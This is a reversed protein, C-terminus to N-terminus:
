GSAALRESDEDLLLTAHRRIEAYPVSEWDGDSAAGGFLRGALRELIRHAAQPHPREPDDAADALFFHLREDINDYGILEVLKARYELEVSSLGPFARHDAVHQAEHGLLSVQFARNEELPEPYREAVCYLGDPWTADGEQYWGGAGQAGFTQWHLWGRILFDHCFHVTVEQPEDRPLTVTFPRHETRSWIYAGLYPPTRGGLFEVGRENFGARLAAEAATVDADDDHTRPRRTLSALEDALRSEATARDEELEFVRTFYRLYAMLAGRMWTDPADDAIHPALLRRATDPMKALHAYVLRDLAPDVSM